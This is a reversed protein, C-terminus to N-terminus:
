GDSGPLGPTFLTNFGGPAEFRRNRFVLRTPGPMAREAIPHRVDGPYCTVRHGDDDVFPEPEILAPRRSRAATVAQQVSTFHSLHALTMIQPAALEIRGEDHLQLADRPRLWSGDSAEFEDHRPWQGAPLAAVFFRTDFRRNMVTPLRPTIWRSWPHLSHTDLQLSLAALMEGFGHGDRLMARASRTTAENAGHAFLVDCEEFVERVAAVFLEAAAPTAAGPEALQDALAGPSQDLRLQLGAEADAPDVKGGPFVHAGALVNSAGHRQLLFTQLGDPADRLIMVTAAARPPADIPDLNPEM